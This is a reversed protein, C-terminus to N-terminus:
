PNLRTLGVRTYCHWHFPPAFLEDAFKPMGELKFNQTMGVIQGAVNLCTETHDRNTGLVAIRELTVGQAELQAAIKAAGNSYAQAALTTAWFEITGLITSPTFLGGRRKDGFVLPANRNPDTNIGFLLLALILRLQRNTDADLAAQATERDEVPLFFSDDIHAQFERADGHWQNVGLANAHDLTSEALTRIQAALNDLTQRIDQERGSRTKTTLGQQLAKRAEAYALDLTVSTELLLNTLLESTFRANAISDPM